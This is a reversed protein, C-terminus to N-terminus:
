MQLRVRFIGFNAPHSSFAFFYLISAIVVFLDNPIFTSALGSLPLLKVVQHKRLSYLVFTSRPEHEREDEDASQMLIGLLPRMEAFPDKGGQPVSRSSPLLLVAAHVVRVGENGDRRDGVMLAWEASDFNLNFVESIASLDACDWLQLGAAYALMLVRRKM